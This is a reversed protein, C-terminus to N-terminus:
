GHLGGDGGVVFGSFNGLGRYTMGPIEGSAIKERLQEDTLRSERAAVHIQDVCEECLYSSEAATDDAAPPIVRRSAFFPTGVATSRGCSVCTQPTMPESAAKLEDSNM